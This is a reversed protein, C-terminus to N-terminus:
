TSSTNPSISQTRGRFCPPPYRRSFESVMKRFQAEALSLKLYVCTLPLTDQLSGGRISIVLDAFVHVGHDSALRHELASTATRGIALRGLANEWDPGSLSSAELSQALCKPSRFNSAARVQSGRTRWVESIWQLHDAIERMELKSARIHQPM